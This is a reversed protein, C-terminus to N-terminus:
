RKINLVKLINVISKKIKVYENIIMIIYLHFFVVTHKANKKDLLFNRKTAGTIM